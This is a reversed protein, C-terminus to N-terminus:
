EYQSDNAQSQWEHNARTRTSWPPLKNSPALVQEVKRRRFNPEGAARVQM